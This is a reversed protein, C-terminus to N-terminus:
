AHSRTNFDGRIIMPLSADMDIGLINTLSNQHDVDHYLNVIQFSSTGLHVDLTLIHHNSNLDVWNTINFHTSTIRHYAM